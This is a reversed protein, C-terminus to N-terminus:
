AWSGKKDEHLRRLTAFTRLSLVMEQRMPTSPTAQRFIATSEDPSMMLIFHPMKQQQTTTHTTDWGEVTSVNMPPTSIPSPISPEPSQPSYAEDAQIVARTALVNIPKPPLNLDNLSPPVIPHQSGFGYPITPENFGSDITVFRPQPSAVSSITITERAMAGSLETSNLVAQVNNRIPSGEESSREVYFRRIRHIFFEVLSLQEDCYITPSGSTQSFIHAASNSSTAQLFSLICLLWDAHPPLHKSTGATIDSTHLDSLQRYLQLQHTTFLDLFLIKFILFISNRKKIYKQFYYSSTLAPLCIPWLLILFLM